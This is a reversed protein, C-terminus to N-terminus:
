GGYTPAGCATMDNVEAFEALYGSAGDGNRIVTETFPGLDGDRLRDVWAERDALHTDWDGLFRDLLEGDRGDPRPLARLEGLMTRLEVNSAAVVAILEAPPSDQTVLALRELRAITEACVPQAAAAFAPDDLLDAPRPKPFPLWAYLWMGAILAVALGTLLRPWRSRPPEDTTGPTATATPTEVM